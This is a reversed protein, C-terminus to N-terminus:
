KAHPISWYIGTALTFIMLIGFIYNMDDEKGTLNGFV